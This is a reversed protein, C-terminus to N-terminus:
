NFMISLWMEEIVSTRRRYKKVFFYGFISESFYKQFLRKLFKILFMSFRVIEELNNESLSDCESCEDVISTVIRQFKKINLLNEM